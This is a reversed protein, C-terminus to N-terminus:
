LAAQPVANPLGGIIATCQSGECLCAYIFCYSGHAGSGNDAHCCYMKRFIQLAFHRKSVKM